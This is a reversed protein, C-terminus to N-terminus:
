RREVTWEGDRDVEIVADFLSRLTNITQPEHASPDLHYHAIAGAMSLHSTLVHLFRYLTDVDTYQLAPTISHFCFATRGEEDTWDELPDTVEIGLRTLNGPDTLTVTEGNSAGSGPRAYGTDHQSTKVDVFRWNKPLDTDVFERWNESRQEPTITYGVSMVHETSTGNAALLEMCAEIDVPSITPALLLVNSAPTAVENRSSDDSPGSESM